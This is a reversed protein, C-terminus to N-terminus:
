AVRLVNEAAQMGSRFAEDTWIHGWDGYRGCRAIGIEDLYGHICDLAPARDHDYIVNAYELFMADSFVIEDDERLVGIRRLDHLTPEIMAEPAVNLPKYKDSFYCEAQVSSTGPPANAPSMLHPFSLRSFVVDEDYVYSIHRDTLDPRGVGLNVLVCSSCALRESAERVDEPAGSIIRILEPLPLTSILREFRDSTGDGFRIMRTRPDIEVAEHELEIHAERAFKALYSVFGGQRPYRFGKIYHVTPAAPALAGRLVEDLSPRYMRPGIWDTTLNRPHTTHYKTTYAVPFEDAFTTGYAQVLWDYYNEIPAAPGAGQDVFDVVIKTILEPPLGHLHCQAPHPLRFGQWYNDLEYALEEYEDDVADALIARMEEDATFSVHPGEDFLFGSDSWTYTHGGAYPNKDYLVVDHREQQLRRWAGFGAMGTGLISITGM